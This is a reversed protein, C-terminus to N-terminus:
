LAAKRRNPLSFARPKLWTPLSASLLYLHLCFIVGKATQEAVFVLTWGHPLWLEFRALSMQGLALFTAGLGIMSVARLVMRKATAWALLQPLTFLLFILRYDWNQTFAYCGVYIGAGVRYAALRQAAASTADPEAEESNEQCGLWGLLFALGGAGLVLLSWGRLFAAGQVMVGHGFAPDNGRGTVREIQQLDSWSFVLYVLFGAIVPGLVWWARRPKAGAVVGLGFIPFIKLIAAAMLGFIALDINGRELALLTAPSLLGAGVYFIGVRSLDPFALVIGGVFLAILVLAFGVTHETTLGLPSLLQWIRPYNMPRRWPDQPIALLPDGGRAYEEAGLTIVLTDAFPPDLVPVGAGMLVSKLDKFALLIGLVLVAGLLAAFVGKRRRWFGARATSAAPEKHTITENM